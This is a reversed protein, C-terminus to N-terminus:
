VAVGNKACEGNRRQEVGWLRAACPNQVREEMAGGRCASLFQPMQFNYPGDDVLQGSVEALILDLRGAKIGVKYISSGTDIGSGCGPEGPTGGAHRDLPVQDGVQRLVQGGITRSHLFLTASFGQFYLIKQQVLKKM